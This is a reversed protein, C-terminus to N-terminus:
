DGDLSNFGLTLGTAEPLVAMATQSLSTFVALLEAIQAQRGAADAAEFAALKKQADDLAAAMRLKESEPSDAMFIDLGERIAVLNLAIDRVTRGSRVGEALRPANENKVDHFLMAVKLDKLAELGAVLDTMMVSAAERGDAFAVQWRANAALAARAGDRGTWDAVIDDAILAQERAVAAGVACRQAGDRGKLKAAEDDPYLLREVIPLGQGAVSGTALKEPALERADSALMANLAKGTADTRDLWWNFREARLAIAAPGIRAFEIGAWADAVSEFARKLEAPDAKDRNACFKKWAGSQVQAAKAVAQFRPIAFADAFHLATAAPDGALAHSAFLLASLAM